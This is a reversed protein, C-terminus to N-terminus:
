KTNEQTWEKRRKLFKIQIDKWAIAGELCEIKNQLENIKKDREEIMENNIKAIIKLALEKYNINEM